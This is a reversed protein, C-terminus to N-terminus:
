DGERTYIYHGKLDKDRMVERKDPMIKPKIRKVASAIPNLNM